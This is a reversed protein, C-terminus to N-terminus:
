QWEKLRGRLAQFRERRITSRRIIPNSTGDSRIDNAYPTVGRPPTNTRTFYSSGGGGGSRGFRRYGNRNYGRGWGNNTNWDNALDEFNKNLIEELDKVMQDAIEEDTPIKWSEHVRELGRMGTNLNFVPDTSNLRDDVELNRENTYFRQLPALGLAGLLKSRPVGTAWMLGDPGKIYTTNLQNYTVTQSYPIQDNWVFDSLGPVTPDEYPGFWLSNMRQKAKAETLGMELGEVVIEEMWSKQIAQRMEYTIYVGHLAPSDFNVSGKWLGQFVARAGYDTLVEAGVAEDFMSLLLGEAEEQELEDLTMKRTKVAMNNRNYDSQFFNPQGTVLSMFLGLSLRNESYGRTAADAQNQSAYGERVDGTEEDVFSNLADTRRPNGMKDSLINGEADIMPIVYPDRDYEDYAVYLQNIFSNEFLMNEYTMMLKTWFGFAQPLAEPTGLEEAKLAADALEAAALNADTWMMDNILPFAGLADQFGWMIQRWDGTEFFREMGMIPSVFQKLMWHMQAMSRDGSVSGEPTVRFLSSLGFPLNDLFIADQNRWDNEIQRPDYVFALGQLQMARRRRKTEEDEGSLGLGGSLLGGAFLATWSVGSQVVAQALDASEIVSELDFTESPEFKSSGLALAKQARIWAKPKKRGHLVMATGTSLAQMGLVTTAVNMAYNSFLLPLKLFITSATAVGMNPHNSLPEYIGRLMLSVPTAKLSRTNMIVAAGAAHAEPINKKVWQSDTKLGMLIQDISFPTSGPVRMVYNLAGERYRRALTTANMGYTPDQILSGKRAAWSTAREIGGASKLRQQQFNMEGFVMQRFDAKSGLDADLRVFQDMQEKTYRAEGFLEAAQKQVWDPAREALGTLARAAGGTSEGLLLNTMDTLAGRFATEGWASVFLAPNLLANAVRLDTLVRLLGNTTTADGEIRTGVERYNKMNLLTPEPVGNKKRWKRRIERRKSLESAPVVTEVRPGNLLERVTTTSASSVVAEQLVAALSPDISFRFQGTEENLVEAQKLMDHSIAMGVPVSEQGFYSHYFGDNATRFLPDFLIDPHGIGLAVKVWDAWETMPTGGAARDHLIFRRKSQNAEFLLSLDDAHLQPVEGGYTPLMNVLANQEIENLAELAVRGSLNGLQADESLPMGYLQRVWFDVVHSQNPELGYRSAVEARRSTYESIEQDTWNKMSLLKRFETKTDYSLRSYAIEASTMQYLTPVAQSEVGDFLDWFADSVQKVRSEDAFRLTKTLGRQRMTQAGITMEATANVHLSFQQRGGAKRDDVQEQLAPSDGAAHVEAFQLFAERTLGKPGTTEVVWDQRLRYGEGLQADLRRNLYQRLPSNLPERDFVATFVQPMLRSELDSSRSDPNNFGGSKHVHELKSQYGMMYVIVAATIRTSPDTTSQKFANVFDYDGPNILAPIKLLEDHLELAPNQMRLIQDVKEIPIRPLQRQIMKLLSIVAQEQLVREQHNPSMDKGLLTKVLDRTFDIGLYAFANRHSNVMGQYGQKSIVDQLSMALDPHWGEFLGAEPLDMWALDAPIPTIKIGGGEFQLKNMYLSLPVYMEVSLGFESRTNVRVVRGTHVTHDPNLSNSAIAINAGDSDNAFSIAQQETVDSRKPTKHGHRYLIVGNTKPDFLPIMDGTGFETSILASSDSEMQEVLKRLSALADKYQQSATKVKMLTALHQPHDNLMASLQQKVRIRQAETRPVNYGGLFNTPVLDVTVAIERRSNPDILAAGNEAWPGDPYLLVMMASRASIGRTEALTAALAKEDQSFKSAPIPRFLYDSGSVREYNMSLLISSLDARLDGGTSGDPLAINAGRGTLIEVVEEAERLQKRADGPYDNEISMLDIIVLDGPAVELGKKNSEAVTLKNLFGKMVGETSGSRYIWSARSSDNGALEDVARSLLATTFDGNVRRDKGIAPQGFHGFDLHQVSMQLWSMAQLVNRESFESIRKQLETDARKTYVADRRAGLAEIARAYRSRARADMVPRVTLEPQYARAAARTSFFDGMERSTMAPVRAVMPELARSTPSWSQINKFDIDLANESFTPLGAAGRENLMTRLTRASITYLEANALGPSEGRRQYGIFEEASMVVLRGDKDGRVYHRLAMHKLVANLYHGPLEGGGLDRRVLAISKQLLVRSLDTEWGLEMKVRETYTFAKNVLYAITGKKSSQLAQGQLMPSMGGHAVHLEDNLSESQSAAVEFSLGEFFVNNAYEDTVPKSDPHLYEIELDVSQLVNDRQPGQAALAREVANRLRNVSIAQWESESARVTRHYHIGLGSSSELMNDLVVQGAVKLTVRRAFRGNLLEVPMDVPNPSGAIMTQFWNQPLGNADKDGEQSFLVQGNLQLTSVHEKLPLLDTRRTAMSETVQSKPTNGAIATALSASGANLRELSATTLSYTTPKWAGLPELVRKYIRDSISKPSDLQVGMPQNALSHIKAAAAVLPSDKKVLDKILYMFSPDMLELGRLDKSAPFDAINMGIAMPGTLDAVHAKLVARSIAEWQANDLRVPQQPNNAVQKILSSIELTAEPAQTMAKTGSRNIYNILNTKTQAVGAPEKWDKFEYHTRAELFVDNSALSDIQQLQEKEQVILSDLLEDNKARAAETKLNTFRAEVSSRVLKLVKEASVDSSDLAYLKGIRAERARKAILDYIEDLLSKEAAVGTDPNIESARIEGVLQLVDLLKAQVSQAQRVVEDSSYKHGHSSAEAIMARNLLETFANPRGSQSAYMDLYSAYVARSKSNKELTNAYFDGSLMSTLSKGSVFQQNVGGRGNTDWVTPFLISRLAPRADENSWLKVFEEVSLVDWKIRRGSEDMMELGDRALAEMNQQVDQVDAATLSASHQEFSTLFGINEGVTQFEGIQTYVEPTQGKTHANPFFHLLSMAAEQLRVNPGLAPLREKALELMEELRRLMTSKQGTPHRLEDELQAMLGADLQSIAQEEAISDVLAASSSKFADFAARQEAGQFGGGGVGRTDTEFDAVDSVWAVFPAERGPIRLEKNVQATFVEVDDAAELLEMFRMLSANNSNDKALRFMLQLWRDTLQDYAYAEDANEVLHGAGISRWKTLILNKFLHAEAKAPSMTFMEYVWNSIKDGSFLANRYEAPVLDVISRGWRPNSTALANIAAPTASKGLMQEIARQATEFGERLTKTTSASRKGFDGGVLGRKSDYPMLANSREALVDVVMQYSSVPVKPDLAQPSYHASDEQALYDPEKRLRRLADARKTEPLVALSKVFQNLTLNSRASDFSAGGLEFLSLEGFVEQFALAGNGPKTAKELVKWRAQQEESPNVSNRQKDQDLGRKLLVQALTLGTEVTEVIETGDVRQVVHPFFTNAIVAPGGLYQNARQADSAISTIQRIVERSLSDKSLLRDVAQESRNDALIEYFRILESIPLDLIEQNTASLVPANWKSYHLHQFLRFLNSGAGVTALTAGDTSAQKNRIRSLRSAQRIVEPNDKKSNTAQRQLTLEKAYTTQFAQIQQQVVDDLLLWENTLTDRGRQIIVDSFGVNLRELLLARANGNGAKVDSRFAKLIRDLEVKAEGTWDQYRTAIIEHISRVAENAADYLVSGPAMQFANGMARIEEVEYERTMINVENSNGLYNMGARSNAFTEPNLHVLAQQRMRDGDFDGGIAQLIAHSVMMANNTNTNALEFNVQPLLVPYSGTQDTPYRVLLMSAARQRATVQAPTLGEGTDAGSWARLLYQNLFDSAENMKRLDGTEQAVAHRAAAQETLKAILAAQALVETVYDIESQEAGQEILQDLQIKYGAEAKRYMRAVQKISFQAVHNPVESNNTQSIQFAGDLNPNLKGLEKDQQLRIADAKGELMPTAAVVEAKQSEQLNTVVARFTAEVLPNSAALTQKDSRKQFEEPTLAEAQRGEVIMKALYQGYLRDASSVGQANGTLAQAFKGFAPHSEMYSQFRTDYLSPRSQSGLTFGAGMTFGMVASQLIDDFEPDWGHSLPELVAQAAEEAAEGFGNVIASTLKREGNLMSNAARYMDDATLTGAKGKQAMRMALVRTSLAGVTESPAVFASWHLKSTMAGEAGEKFTYGGMQVSSTAPSAGKAMALQGQVKTGLSRFFAWQAADIGVNMWAAAEQGATREDRGRYRGSRDDWLEGTALGLVGGGLSASMSATYIGATLPNLMMLFADSLNSIHGATQWWNSALREGDEDVDYFSARGDGADGLVEDAAGQVFNSFPNVARLLSQGGGGLFASFGTVTADMERARDMQVATRAQELTIQDRNLWAAGAGFAAGIGAGILTGVGPGFFSGIVAGGAAGGAAGGLAAAEDGWGEQYDQQKKAVDSSFDKQTLWGDYERNTQERNEQITKAMSGPASSERAFTRRQDEPAMTLQVMMQDAAAQGYQDYINGTRTGNEFIDGFKKDKVDQTVIGTYDSRGYLDPQKGARVEEIQAFMKQYFPTNWANAQSGSQGGTQWKPLGTQYVGGTGGALLDRGQAGAPAGAGGPSTGYSAGSDALLDRGAM